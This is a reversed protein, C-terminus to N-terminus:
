VYGSPFYAYPNTSASTEIAQAGFCGGTARSSVVSAPLVFRTQGVGIEAEEGVILKAATITLGPVSTVTPQQGCVMNQLQVQTVNQVISMLQASSFASPAPAALLHAVSLLAAQAASSSLSVWSSALSFLLSSGASVAAPTLQDPKMTLAALLQLQQEVAQATSSPLVVASLSQLLSARIAVVDPAAGSSHANLVGAVAFALQGFTSADGLDVADQVAGSMLASVDEM